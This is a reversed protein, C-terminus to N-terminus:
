ATRQPTETGVVAVARWSRVAALAAPYPRSSKEATALTTSASAPAPHRAARQGRGARIRAASWRARATASSRSSPRTRRRRQGLRQGRAVADQGGRLRQGPRRRGAMERRQVALASREMLRVPSAPETKSNSARRTALTGRAAASPQDPTFCMVRMSMSSAMVADASPQEALHEVTSPPRGPRASQAAPMPLRVSGVRCPHWQAPEIMAWSMPVGTM